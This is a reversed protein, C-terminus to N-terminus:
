HIGQMRSTRSWNPALYMSACIRHGGMGVWVMVNVNCGYGDTKHAVVM